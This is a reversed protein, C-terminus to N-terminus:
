ATKVTPETPQYTAIVVGTTTTKTEVLRLAPYAGRDPFLRRGSGLVLPNITLAYEDVLNHRMLSHVLERNGLVALDEGPHEKLRAEAKAPRGQPFVQRSALNSACPPGLNRVGLSNLSTM